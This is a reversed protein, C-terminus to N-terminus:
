RAPAQFGSSRQLDLQRLQCIEQEQTGDEENDDNEGDGAEFDGVLDNEVTDGCGDSDNRFRENCHQRECHRSASPYHGPLMDDDSLEISQLIKAADCIDAAVLSTSKRQTLM